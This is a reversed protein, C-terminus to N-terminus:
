HGYIGPMDTEKTIASEESELFGQLDRLRTPNRLKRLGKAEIQRIRERTLSYIKGAEELTRDAGVKLGFRLELINRERESLSSLALTWSRKACVTASERRHIKLRVKKDEIFDGVSM